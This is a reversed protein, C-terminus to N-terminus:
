VNDFSHIMADMEQKHKNAHKDMCWTLLQFFDEETEYVAMKYYVKYQGLRGYFENEIASFGNIISPIPNKNGQTFEDLILELNIATRENVKNLTIRGSDAFTEILENKPLVLVTVYVEDEFEKSTSDKDKNVYGYQLEAKPNIDWMETFYKPVDIKFREAIVISNVNELETKPDNNEESSTQCSVVCFVIFVPLFFRFLYLKIPNPM